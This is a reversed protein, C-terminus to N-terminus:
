RCVFTSSASYPSSCELRGVVTVSRGGSTIRDLAGARRVRPLRPRQSRISLVAGTGSFQESRINSVREGTVRTFFSEDMGTPASPGSRRRRPPPSPAVRCAPWSNATDFSRSGGDHSTFITSGAHDDRSIWVDNEYAASTPASSEDYVKTECLMLCRRHEDLCSSAVDIPEGSLESLHKGSPSCRATVVYISPASVTLGLISEGSGITVPGGREPGTWQRTSRGPLNAGGVAYGVNATAFVLRNLDGTLSGSVASLPPLSVASFRTASVSTRYLRLCRLQQCGVLDVVYMTRSVPCRALMEPVVVVTSRWELCGGRAGNLVCHAPFDHRSVLSSAM